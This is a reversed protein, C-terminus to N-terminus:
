IHILSLDPTVNDTNEDYVEAPVAVVDRPSKINKSKKHGLIRRTKPDNLLRSIQQRARPFIKNLKPCDRKLSSSTKYQGVRRRLDYRPNECRKMLERDAGRPATTSRSSSVSHRSKMLELNKRLKAIIGEKNHLLHRDQTLTTKAQSLRANLSKIKRTLFLVKKGFNRETRKMLTVRLRRKNEWFYGYSHKPHRRNRTKVPEICPGSSAHTSSSATPNTLSSHLDSRSLHFLQAESEDLKHKLEFIEIETRKKHTDFNKSIITLDDNDSQLTDALQNLKSETVRHNEVEVRMNDYLVRNDNLERRLRVLESKAVTLKKTVSETQKKEEDVISKLNVIESKYDQCRVCDTILRSRSPRSLSMTRFFDFCYLHSILFFYFVIYFGQM